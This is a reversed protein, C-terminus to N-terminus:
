DVIKGSQNGGSVVRSAEPEIVNNMHKKHMLLSEVCLLGSLTLCAAGLLGAIILVGESTEINNSADLYLGTWTLQTLFVLLWFFFGRLRTKRAHPAFFLTFRPSILSIIALALSPLLGILFISNIVESSLSFMERGMVKSLM